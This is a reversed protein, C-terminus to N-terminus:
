YRVRLYGCSRAGAVLMLSERATAILLREAPEELEAYLEGEGDRGITIPGLLDALIQRTRVRDKVSNLTNQLDEVMTRYREAVDEAIAQQSPVVHALLQAELRAREAESARLRDQLANSLGMVAIADVLRAIESQLEKIRKRMTDESAARSRNEDALLDMVAAQLEAVADPSLLDERLEDLLGSDVRERSVTLNSSCVAEGRDKHVGCGYRSSNIGIMPGGCEACKLLGGFLTRMPQGRKVGATSQPAYRARVLQWAEDSVIRLEPLERHQWEDKPRDIYRRAGTDPDKVWQRKNWTLRGVYIENNLLGLGKSADGTLASVAWTGGRPSPIGRQNLLHAISRASKGDAFHRFIERVIDAEKEDIALVRGGQAEISRYGYSRGGASFGRDFQGALGRHTKERLDDLYLENVLGRAIRMVKRGSAQTDYGDATGIIRIGRHELRKVMIEAEGLERSLRDLGEVILVDFRTALSDALLAKGGARLAIPTSGSIGEDTHTAVITWGERKARTRAERLQDEVSTERQKDTSYRAYLCARITM